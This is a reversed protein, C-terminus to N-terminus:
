VEWNWQQDLLSFELDIEALEAISSTSADSENSVPKTGTTIPAIVVDNILLTETWSDHLGDVDDAVKEASAPSSFALTIGNLRAFAADRQSNAFEQEAGLASSSSTLAAVPAQSQGYNRQWILYDRGTVTGDGDADGPLYGHSQSMGYTQQWIGLDVEDVNGDLDFDGPITPTSSVTYINADPINGDGMFFSTHPPQNYGVNQWAIDQRYMPDHMLTYTRSTAAITTSWIQLASNDSTRWIVEERWDGLIDAALSPTSKTGNNSSLGATSNIGSNGFSVINSRGPNNWNSITTGDLLESQLDADWYVGFNTFM